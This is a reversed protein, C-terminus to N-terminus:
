LPRALSFGDFFFYLTTKPQGRPIIMALSFFFSCCLFIDNKGRQKKLTWQWALAAIILTPVFELVRRHQFIYIDGVAASLFFISHISWM